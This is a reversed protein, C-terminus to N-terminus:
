LIEGLKTIRDILSLGSLLHALAHERREVLLEVLIMNDQM